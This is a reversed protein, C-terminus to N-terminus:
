ISYYDTINEIKAVHYFSEKSVNKADIQVKLIHENEAFNGLGTFLKVNGKSDTKMDSYFNM